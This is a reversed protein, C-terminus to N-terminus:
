CEATTENKRVIEEMWFGIFGDKEARSVRFFTLGCTHGTSIHFPTGTTHSELVMM